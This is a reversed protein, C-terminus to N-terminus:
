DLSDLIKENTLLENTLDTTEVGSGSNSKRTYVVDHFVYKGNEDRKFGTIQLPLIEVSGRTPNLGYRRM